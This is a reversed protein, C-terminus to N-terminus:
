GKRVLVIMVPRLRVPTLAHLLRMAAKILSSGFYYSPEVDPYKITVSAAAFHRRLSRPENLRYRVPFKDHDERGPQAKSLIFGYLRDPLLRAATAVYGYRNPTRACIFGGPRLVRLLERAVLDPRAIHEFTNDSVILDFSEDAFPLPADGDILTISDAAPHSQVADDVDCATVRAGLARLDQLFAKYRNGAERAAVIGGGRGAGFDLVERAATAVQCAQVTQYFQITGDTDLTEFHRELFAGPGQAVSTTM